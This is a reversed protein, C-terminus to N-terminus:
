CCSYTLYAKPLPLGCKQSMYFEMGTVTARQEPVWQSIVPPVPSLTQSTDVFCTVRDVQNELDSDPSESTVQANVYSM